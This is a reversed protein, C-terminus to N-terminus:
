ARQPSDRANDYSLTVQMTTALLRTFQPLYSANEYSLTVQM